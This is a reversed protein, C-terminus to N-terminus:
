RTEKVIRIKMKVFPHINEVEPNMEVSSMTALMKRPKTDDKVKTYRLLKYLIDFEFFAM